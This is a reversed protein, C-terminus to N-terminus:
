GGRLLVKVATLMAVRQLVDGGLGRLLEEERKAM